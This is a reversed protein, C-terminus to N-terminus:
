PLTVQNGVGSNNTRDPETVRNDFNVIAGVNFDGSLNTPLTSTGTLIVSSGGTIGSSYGAYGVLNDFGTIDTDTSLYIGTGLNVGYNVSGIVGNGTNKITATYTLKGNAV